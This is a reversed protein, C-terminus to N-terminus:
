NLIELVICKTDSVRKYRRRCRDLLRELLTDIRDLNTGAIDLAGVEIFHSCLLFIKKFIPDLRDFVKYRALARDNTLM